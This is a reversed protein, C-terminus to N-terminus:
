HRIRFPTRKSYLVNNPWQYFKFPTEPNSPLLTGM